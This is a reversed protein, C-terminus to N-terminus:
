TRSRRRTKQRAFSKVAKRPAPLVRSTRFPLRHGRMLKVDKSKAICNDIHNRRYVVLEKDRRPQVLARHLEHVLRPRLRKVVRHARGRDHRASRRGIRDGTQRAEAALAGKNALDGGVLRTASEGMVNPSRAHM